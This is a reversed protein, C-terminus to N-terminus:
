EEHHEMITFEGKNSWGLKTLAAALKPNSIVARITKVGRLKLVELMTAGLLYSVRPDIGERVIFSDIWAYPQDNDWATIFGLVKGDAVYVLSLEPNFTWGQNWEKGTDEFLRQVAPLDTATPHRIM